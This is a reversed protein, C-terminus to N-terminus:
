RPALEHQSQESAERHRIHILWVIAVPLASASGAAGGLILHLLLDGKSFLGGGFAVQFALLASAGFAGGLLLFGALWLAGAREEPHRCQSWGYVALMASFMMAFPMSLRYALVLNPQGLSQQLIM